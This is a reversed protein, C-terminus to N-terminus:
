KWRGIGSWVMRHYLDDVEAASIKEGHQLWWVLSAFLASAFMRTLLTRQQAPIQPMGAVENFRAEIGRAFHAEGLEIVDRLKGSVLLAQHLKREGAVHALLERVPAIRNSVEKRRSLLTATMEWFDDVDGLLLDTKDSYHTYFTARSVGARDLVQQVTIEEFAKERLLTVLADGLANRTSLVRRDTKRASASKSTAKKAKGSM